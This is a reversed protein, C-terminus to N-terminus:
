RSLGEPLEKLRELELIEHYFWPKGTAKKFIICKSPYKVGDHEKYDSFRYIDSAWDMRILLTTEKDFYLEMAPKITESVRLGFATKGGESVDPVTEIKSATDTIAGLAWGWVDFKAPEGTRDKKGVWWYKPADLVSERMSSKKGEDPMPNAGFHFQEKIRFLKLLKDAGGAATVAKDILAKVDASPPATESFGSAILSVSIILFLIRAKM